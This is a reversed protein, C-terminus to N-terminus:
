FRLLKPHLIAHTTTLNTLYDSIDQSWWDCELFKKEGIPIKIKVGGFTNTTSGKPISKMASSWKSLPIIIDIDGPEKDTLGQLYSSYSGVVFGDHVYLFTRVLPPINSLRDYIM